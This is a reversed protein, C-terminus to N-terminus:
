RSRGNPRIRQSYSSGTCRWRVRRTWSPNVLTGVVRAGPPLPVDFPLNPPLESPLLQVTRWPVNSSERVLRSALERLGAESGAGSPAGDSDNDNQTMGAPQDAAAPQEGSPLPGPAAQEADTMPPRSARREEMAAIWWELYRRHLDTAWLWLCGPYHIDPEGESEHVTQTGYGCGFRCITRGTKADTVLPDMNMLRETLERLERLLQNQTRNLAPQKPQAPTRPSVPKPAPHDNSM